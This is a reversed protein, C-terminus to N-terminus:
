AGQALRDRLLEALKEGPLTTGEDDPTAFVQVDIGAEQLESLTDSIWDAIGMSVLDAEEIGSDEFWRLAYDPHPWVAVFQEHEDTGLVLLAEDQALTWLEGTQAAKDLFHALREEAPLALTNQLEKASLDYSM